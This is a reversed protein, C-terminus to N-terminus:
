GEDRGLLDRMAAVDADLKGAVHAYDNELLLAKPVFHALVHDRVLTAIQEGTLRRGRPEKVHVEACVRSQALLDDLLMGPDHGADIANGTDVVLSLNPRDVAHYLRIAQASGLASESAVGMGRATASEAVPRLFAATAMLQGADGITSAGFSPIHLTEAGLAAAVDLAQMALSLCYPNVRNDETFIGVDNAHNFALVPVAVDSLLPLLRSLCAGDSLVTGRHAGGFDLHVRRVGAGIAQEIAAARDISLRWQPLALEVQELDDTM